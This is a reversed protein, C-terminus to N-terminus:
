ARVYSVIAKLRATTAFDSAGLSGVAAAPYFIMGNGDGVIGDNALLVTGGFGASASGRGHCVGIADSPDPSLVGSNHFTLDAIFPLSIRWSSGGFDAAEDIFLDIVTTIHDGVRWWKGELFSTGNIVPNGGTAAITPSYTGKIPAVADLADSNAGTQSPWNQAPEASDPKILGLNPTVTTGM